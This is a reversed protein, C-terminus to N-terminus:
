FAEVEITALKAELLLSKRPAPRSAKTRVGADALIATRSREFSAPLVRLEPVNLSSALVVKQVYGNRFGGIFNGTNYASLAAYLAQDGPGYRKVAMSYNNSLITQSARLNTCPDFIQEVTLRLGKLNRNNVQGLGMDIVHGAAILEKAVKVAEAHSQPRLSRLVRKSRSVGWNGNDLIAYPNGGSEHRILASMTVPHVNPACERLLGGLDAARTELTLFGSAAALVRLAVHM